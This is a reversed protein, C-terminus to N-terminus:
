GSLSCLGSDFETVDQAGLGHFAEEHRVVSLFTSAM